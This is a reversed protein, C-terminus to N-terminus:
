FSDSDPSCIADFLILGAESAPLSQCYAAMAARLQDPTAGKHAATLVAHTLEYFSGSTDPGPPAELTEMVHVAVGWCTEFTFRPAQGYCVEQLARWDAVAELLAQRATRQQMAEFDKATFKLM